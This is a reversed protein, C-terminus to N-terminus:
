NPKVNLNKQLFSTWTESLKNTVLVCDGTVLKSEDFGVGEALLKDAIDEEDDGKYGHAM